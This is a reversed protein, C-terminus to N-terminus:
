VVEHDPTGKDNITYWEKEKAKTLTLVIRNEKRKFSAGKINASLRAFSLCQPEPKYNNVTLCFSNETYELSIDDDTCKEGIGVM